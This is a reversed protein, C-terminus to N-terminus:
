WLAPGADPFTFTWPAEVTPRDRLPRTRTLWHCIGAYRLESRDEYSAPSACYRERTRARSTDSKGAAGYAINGALHTTLYPASESDLWVRACAPCACRISVVIACPAGRARIPGSPWPAYSAAVLGKRSVIDASMRRVQRLNLRLPVKSRSCDRGQSRLLVIFIPPTEGSRGAVRGLKTGTTRPIAATSMAITTRLASSASLSGGHRGYGPSPVSDDIKTTIIM